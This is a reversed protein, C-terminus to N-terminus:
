GRMWDRNSPRYNRSPGTWQSRAIPTDYVAVPYPQLQLGTERNFKDLDALRTIGGFGHIGSRGIVKAVDGFFAAMEAYHQDLPHWSEYVGNPKTIERMHLYPVDHTDLLLRWDTRFADWQDPFGVFGAV